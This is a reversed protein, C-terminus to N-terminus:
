RYAHKRHEFWAFEVTKGQIKYIIRFKEIRESLYNSLPAHLPKGLGPNQLIKEIRKYALEKQRKDLKRIEKLFLESFASSFEPM